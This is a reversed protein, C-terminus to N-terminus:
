DGEARASGEVPRGDRHFLVCLVERDGTAWSGEDPYITGIGYV